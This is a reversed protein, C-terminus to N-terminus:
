FKVLPQEYRNGQGKKWAEKAVAIQKELPAFVRDALSPAFQNAQTDLQKVGDILATLRVATTQTFAELTDLKPKAMPLHPVMRIIVICPAVHPSQDISKQTPQNVDQIQMLMSALETLQDPRM